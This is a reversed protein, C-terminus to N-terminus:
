RKNTQKTTSKGKREVAYYVSFMLKRIIGQERHKVKFWQMNELSINLKMIDIRTESLCISFNLTKRSDLFVPFEQKENAQSYLRRENAGAVVHSVRLGEKRKV